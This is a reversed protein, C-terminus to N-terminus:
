WFLSKRAFFSWKNFQNDHTTFLNKQQQQISYTFTPMHKGPIYTHTFFWKWIPFNFDEDLMVAGVEIVENIFGKIRKAYTNNWELDMVIYHMKNESGVDYINVINPHELGAAAQAETRFKSLFNVDESYESKLVKVAVNRGLLHDMAKYVDSMGGTGIKDLIEYRDAMYMGATLM